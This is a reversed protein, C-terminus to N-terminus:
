INSERVLQKLYTTANEIADQQNNAVSMIDYVKFINLFDIDKSSLNNEGVFLYLLTKHKQCLQALGHILKGQITQRDIKGEGSIVLDAGIIKQELNILKIISATGSKIQAKFLAVLAAPVGGAAGCAPINSVDRGSHQELKESFNQLGKDLEKVLNTDAGKQKAYVYAAGNPGHLSNNVDCLLELKLGSFQNLDAKNQISCVKALSQGIPPLPKNRNGFFTYGLASAIGMGGDNTASGGLFLYINKYGKHFADKIILGTGLTSTRSPNYEEKKLLNLGSAKALEIFAAKSSTYYYTNIARGLPDFTQIEQKQLNLQESIIDISGEGGDAMAQTKIQYNNPSKLLADQISECVERSSLSDKFKDPAILIKLTDKM